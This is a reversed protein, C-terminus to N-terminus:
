GLSAVGTRGELPVGAQVAEERVSRRLPIEPVALVVAFTLAMLPVGMVFIPHIAHALADRVEPSPRAGAHILAGPGRARGPDGPLAALRSTLVAGMVTVGIMGGISRSFQGFSTAAGLLRSPAGNQVILVLNQLLLGLGLGLVIMARTAEAPSSHSDLGALLLFGILMVLPGARIAWRYRGLRSILQGSGISAIMMSLILPTLVVGSSTASTGIAGQVFLPVFMITGFMAMGVAFGALNATAFVRRRFLPLPLIPEEVRREWWGFLALVLIAIAYLGVVDTSGWPHEQGGWATALLASTLGAMLLAAGVYDVRSGAEPHRPVKLTVAVVALAIVGVPLSVFFVWRWATHDVIWGGTMPGLISAVGFVAGTLGQWKGREAPPIMDGITAIALPILAGAGLGQIARAVILQTMSGATGGVVAGAMFIVIGLSFFLRRGYLDSLKGWVPVTVTAGLMYASFVWSYHEVGGLSSVIRPLATAVITQNLAALLMGLMLGSFALVTARRGLLYGDPSVSM